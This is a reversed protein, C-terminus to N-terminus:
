SHQGLYYKKDIFWFSKICLDLCFHIFLVKFFINGAISGKCEKLSTYLNPLKFNFVQIRSEAPCESHNPSNRLTSRSVLGIIQESNLQNRSFADKYHFSKSNQLRTEYQTVSQTQIYWMMDCKQVPHNKKVNTAGYISTM